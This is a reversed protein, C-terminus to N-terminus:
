GRSQCDGVGALKELAAAAAAQEAKKRSTGSGVGLKRGQSDRVEVKFLPCHDAGQREILEYVPPRGCVEQLREQLASKHDDSLSLARDALDEVLRSLVQRGGDLYLAALLAELADALLAPRRRGAQKEEGRGLRLYSGLGLGSAFRALAETNVIRSRMRTLKGEEWDPERRYLLESVFLELVADGLFELRENDDVVPGTAAADVQSQENVFSKHTLATLLLEPKKFRYGLIRELEAPPAPRATL